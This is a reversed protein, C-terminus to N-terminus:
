CDSNEIERRIKFFELSNEADVKSKYFVIDHNPTMNTRWDYESALM